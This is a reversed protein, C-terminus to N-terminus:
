GSLATRASCRHARRADSAAALDPALSSSVRMGAPVMPDPRRQPGLVAGIEARQQAGAVRDARAQRHRSQGPHGLCQLSPPKSSLPLGIRLELGGVQHTRPTSQRRRSRTTRDSSRGPRCRGADRAVEQVPKIAVGRPRHLGNDHMRSTGCGAVPLVRLLGDVDYAPSCRDTRQETPSRCLRPRYGPTRLPNHRRHSATHIM